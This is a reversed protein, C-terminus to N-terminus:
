LTCFIFLFPLDIQHCLVLFSFNYHFYETSHYYFFDVKIVGAQFHHFESYGAVIVEYGKSVM